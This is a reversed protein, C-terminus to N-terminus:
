DRSSGGFFRLLFLFINIFDLYLTLAGLISLRLYDAEVVNTGAEDSMRKIKQTDYATLLSFIVVGAFSIIYNMVDSKLFFNVLSAIVLGILAM